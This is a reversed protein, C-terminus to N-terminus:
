KKRKPKELEDDSWEEELEENFKDFDVETEVDQGDEMRAKEMEKHEEERIREVEELDREYKKQYYEYQEYNKAMIRDLLKDREKRAAKLEFYNLFQLITGVSVTAVFAYAWFDM